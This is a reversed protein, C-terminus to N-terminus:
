LSPLIIHSLSLIPVLVCPCLNAMLLNLSSILLVDGSMVAALPTAEWYSLSFGVAANELPPAPIGLEPILYSSVLVWVGRNSRGAAWSHHLM